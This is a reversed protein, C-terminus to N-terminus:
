RTPFQGSDLFEQLKQLVQERTFEPNADFFQKWAENYDWSWDQHSGPPTGEVWRGFQVDSADLGVEAFRDRHKWPLNHHVQPNTFGPPKPGMVKRLADYNGPPKLLGQRVLIRRQQITLGLDGLADWRDRFKRKKFAARIADLAPGDFTALVDDGSKLVVRGAAPLAATAFPLFGVAAAWQGETLESFTFVWDFGENAVCIGSLYLRTTAATVESAVVLRQKYAAIWYELDTGPDLEAVFEDYPLCKRLGTFLHQAATIADIDEEIEIEFTGQTATWYDVDLDGAVDGLTIVGGASQYSGLLDLGTEGFMLQFYTLLVPMTIPEAPPEGPEEAPPGFDDEFLEVDVLKAPNFGQQALTFRLERELVDSIVLGEPKVQDLGPPLDADTIVFIRPRWQQGPDQAVFYYKTPSFTFPALPTEVDNVVGSLVAASEDNLGEARLLYGGMWGNPGEPEFDIEEARAIIPLFYSGGDPDDGVRVAHPALVTDQIFRLSDVDTETWTTYASYSLDDDFHYTVKASFVDPEDPTLELPGDIQVTCPITVQEDVFLLEGTFILSAPAELPEAVQGDDPLPDRDGFYAWAFDPVDDTPEQEFQLTLGVEGTVPPPFLDDLMQWQMAITIEDEAVRGAANPSTRATLIYASPRVVSSGADFTITREFEVDLLYPQWPMIGSGPSLAPLDGLVDVVQGNIYFRVEQLRQAPDDALESLRDLVHGRLSVELQGAANLEIDVLEIELEPTLNSPYQVLPAREETGTEEDFTVFELEYPRLRVADACGTGDLGIEIRQNTDATCPRVAEVYLTISDTGSELGLQQATFTGAPVFDGPAQPDDIPRPDRAVEGEKTWLRLNGPAAEFYSGEVYVQAPDSASYQVSITLGEPEGECGLDLVIPVFQRGICIDDTNGPEGDLNFGDAFDPISDRDVNDTNVAILKGPAGPDDEVADEQESRDPAAWGNDNDSDVDLDIRPLYLTATKGEAWNCGGCFEEEHVGLLNDPDDIAACEDNLPEVIATYDYDPDDLITGLHTVTIEYSEGRRVKRVKTIVEGHGPAALGTYGVKILWRESHSGSDDGITLRLDVVDEPPPAEGDDSPDNPNSGQAVEDGDSTGDGDTDIENPDTGYIWEDINILGDGDDDEESDLTGDGDSDSSFPDMGNHVEWGDPLGDSDSDFYDPDTGLACAEVYDPLGDNDSDHDPDAPDGPDYPDSGILYECEDPIGDDDTDGDPDPTLPDTGNAYEYLNLWGDLDPDEYPDLTGNGDTDRSFPDLGYLTEWNDPLYDGDSDLASRIYFEVVDYCTDCNKWGARLTVPGRRLLELSIPSGHPGNPFDVRFLGATISWRLEGQSPVTSAAASIICGVALPPPGLGFIEVECGPGPCNTTDLCCDCPEGNCRWEGGDGFDIWVALCPEPCTGPNCGCNPAGGTAGGLLFAGLNASVLELDGTDVVGDANLDGDARAPEDNMGQNAVVTDFDAADVDGDGDVDGDVPAWPDFALAREDFAYVPLGTAGSFVYTLLWEEDEDDSFWGAARLDGIGDGSLDALAGVESGFDHIWSFVRNLVLDADHASITLPVASDFPGHFVYVRGDGDLPAGVAVDKFGDGNLDADCTVAYGFLDDGTTGEFTVMLDGDEGSTVYVIGPLPLPSGGDPAAIIVDSRTDADLDDTTSVVYEDDQANATLPFLLAIVVCLVRAPTTCRKM